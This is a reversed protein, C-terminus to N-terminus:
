QYEDKYELNKTFLAQKKIRRKTSWSTEKPFRVNVLCSGSFDIKSVDGVFTMNAIVSNKIAGEKINRLTGSTVISSYILLSPHYYRDAIFNHMLSGFIQKESYLRHEANEQQNIRDFDMQFKLLTCHNLDQVENPDLGEIGASYLSFSLTIFTILIAIKKM